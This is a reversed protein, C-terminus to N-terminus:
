ATGGRTSMRAAKKKARSGGPAAVEVRNRGAQKASYLAQDALKIVGDVNSHKADPGAVGISVTVSLEHSNPPTPARNRSGKKKQHALKRRDAGRSATRRDYGRLRFTSKEVTARLLELHDRVEDVSKGPFLISFEEGGVRFALGGGTVGELRGAVLCLVDDGIDHGYTDNFKKFHDIDVVAVAYPSELVATAQNFARRAPLGTLEDHYAMSYSTEIISVVLIVAATAFYARATPGLGGVSLAVFSSLLAWAFGGDAPKRYSIYRAVLVGFAVAFALCSIQPIRTWSFWGRNLLAGHFLASGPAPQPRCLVAVFVSEVFLLLVRPAIAPATFGRERVMTILAINIPLLFSVTELATLGPGGTPIRGDAFFGVVRNALLLLVLASFVRGSHFRWALLLGVGFAAYYYLDVVSVSTTLWEARASILAAALLVGGPLLLSTLASKNWVRV